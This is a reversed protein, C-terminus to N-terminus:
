EGNEKEEQKKGNKFEDIDKKVSGNNGARFKNSPFPVNNWNKYDTGWKENLEEVSTYKKKLFTSFENKIQLMVRKETIDISTIFNKQTWGQLQKLDSVKRRIKQM